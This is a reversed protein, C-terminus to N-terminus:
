TMTPRTEPAQAQLQALEAPTNVNYFAMPDDQPPGFPVLTCGQAMAWHHIRREGSALSENLSTALRRHMLCFVPQPQLSGDPRPAAAMAIPTGAQWAAHALRAALDAPFLPTDCPVTLVWPTSLHALATAFGALPGQFDDRGDGHIPVGLQAYASENRNANIAVSAVQPRLRRLVWHVLAQGHLLLLGKDKGGMRAGRGGSLIWGGITERTPAQIAAGETDPVPTSTTDHRM